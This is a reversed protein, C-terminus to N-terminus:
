LLLRANQRCLTCDLSRSSPSTCQPYLHRSRAHNSVRRDFRPACYADGTFENRCLNAPYPSKRGRTAKGISGARGVTRCPGHSAIWYIRSGIKTTGEIDAEPHEPDIGLFGTLDYSFVPSGAEGTRYVRLVNNEDDAVIFMDKAIAVAASADSARRFVLKEAGPRGGGAFSAAGCVSVSFLVIGIVRM